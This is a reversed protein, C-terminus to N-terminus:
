GKKAAPKPNIPEVRPSAVSVSKLDKEQMDKLKAQLDEVAQALILNRNKLFDREAMLERLEVMPSIKLTTM